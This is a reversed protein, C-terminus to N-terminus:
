ELKDEITKMKSSDYTFKVNDLIDTPPTQKKDGLICYRKGRFLIPL